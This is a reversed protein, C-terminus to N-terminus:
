IRFNKINKFGFFKVTDETQDQKQQMLLNRQPNQQEMFRKKKKVEMLKNQNIIYHPLASTGTASGKQIASPLTIGEVNVM